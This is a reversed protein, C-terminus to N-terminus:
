RKEYQAIVILVIPDKDTLESKLAVDMLVLISVLLTKRSVKNIWVLSQSYPISSGSGM